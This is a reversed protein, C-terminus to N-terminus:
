KKDNSEEKIFKCNKLQYETATGDANSYKSEEFKIESIEELDFGINMNYKKAKGIADDIAKAKILFTESHIESVTIAYINM